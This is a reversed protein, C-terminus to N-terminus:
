TNIKQFINTKKSISYMLSLNIWFITLNYDGFFSGTPLFPLFPSLLFILSGIQIYNKSELIIKFKSFILNFFIFLLIVTGILGHEALFEFYTQHPHIDCIYNPKKNEICVELRYNKNGVGFFPYSKFVSLGSQYHAFYLSKRIDKLITEDYETNNVKSQYLSIIPDVLQSKYRLNLFNSSNILFVFLISLIFISFLKEKINFYDNVFYFVFFGLIAKITNSREGTLLIALFFCMSVILIFYKYNGSFKSKLSFFYGIIILYFANIYGGVIPEDKFFSVIRERYEEGYGLINRGTFSEIYTDIIVVLLTLSWIVFIKNFFNKYYFFYNFACFLIVLRIFGFNRLAGISVEKSM